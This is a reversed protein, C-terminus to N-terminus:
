LTPCEIVRRKFYDPFPTYWFETYIKLYEEATLPIYEGLVIRLGKNNKTFWADGHKIMRAFRTIEEETM